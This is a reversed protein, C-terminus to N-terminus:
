KAGKPLLLDRLRALIAPNMKYLDSFIKATEAGDIPDIELQAKKADALFDPDKMTDLFAKRLVMLRDSPTGPPAAYPRLAASYMLSGVRILEKALETKAFEIALPINQLEQHSALAVQVVVSVNGSELQNRMTAKIGLWSWCSGDIEKGEMALAIEATGKHGEVLQTPVALAENLIRPVDSTNSGPAIGGIKPPKDTSLWQKMNTIRSANNFICVAHDSAPVGIWGFKRGDFTAAKNGLVQQLVLPGIFNGITLGDPKARHYLYNTAILSGAGPMNEVVTTPNGPLHKAIHRAITRTYVDYGGGPSFGVVFRLTKGSYFEDGAAALPGSLFALCSVFLIVLQFAKFM